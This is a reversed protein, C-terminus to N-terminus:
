ITHSEFRREVITCLDRLRNITMGDDSLMKENWQIVSQSEGRLTFESFEIPCLSAPVDLIRQVLEKRYLSLSDKITEKEKDTTVSGSIKTKPDHDIYTFQRRNGDNDIYAGGHNGVHDKKKDVAM